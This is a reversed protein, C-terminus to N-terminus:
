EADQYGDPLENILNRFADGYQKELPSGCVYTVMTMFCIDRDLWKSVLYAFGQQFASQDSWKSGFGSLAFIDVIFRLKQEYTMRSM